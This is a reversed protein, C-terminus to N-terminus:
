SGIPSLDKDIGLASRNAYRCRNIEDIGIAIDDASYFIWLEAAATERFILREAIARMFFERLLLFLSFLAGM